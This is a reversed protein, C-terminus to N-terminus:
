STCGQVGSIVMVGEPLTISKLASCGNFGTVTTVGPKVVVTELSTCGEFMDYTMDSGQITVSKLSTCGEFLGRSQNTWNTPLNIMQLNSCGSFANDSVVSVDKPLTVSELATCGSFIYSRSITKLTSPFVIEKLNIMNSFSVSPYDMRESLSQSGEYISQLATIGEEFIIKEIEDRVDANNWYMMGLLPNNSYVCGTGSFVLSNDSYHTWTCDGATGSSIVEVALATGTLAFLVLLAAILIGFCAKKM